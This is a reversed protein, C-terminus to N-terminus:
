KVDIKVNHDEEFDYNDWSFVHLIMELNENMEPLEGGSYDQISLVVDAKKGPAITTSMSLLSEDVMKGDISVQRAQVEVSDQRKNEVEFTVEIKEENWDKDVIHEISVLKAYINETNAVEKNVEQKDSKVKDEQASEEKPSSTVNGDKETSDGGGCAALLFVALLSILSARFGQSM